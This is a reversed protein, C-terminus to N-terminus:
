FDEDEEPLYAPAGHSVASAPAIREADEDENEPVWEPANGYRDAPIYQAM